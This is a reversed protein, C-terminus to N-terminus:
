LRCRELKYGSDLNDEFWPKKIHQSCVVLSWLRLLLSKTQLLWKHLACCLQCSTISCISFSTKPKLSPLTFIKFFVISIAMFEFLPSFDFLHLWHPRAKEWALWKLVCKFICLPSFDFWTCGIHSHRSQDLHTLSVNSFVCQAWQLRWPCGGVRHILMKM